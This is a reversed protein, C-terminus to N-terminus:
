CMFATVELIEIRNNIDEHKKEPNYESIMTLSFYQYWQLM